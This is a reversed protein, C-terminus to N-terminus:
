ILIQFCFTFVDFTSLIHTFVVCVNLITIIIIACLQCVLYVHILTEDLFEEMTFILTCICCIVDLMLTDLAFRRLCALFLKTQLM